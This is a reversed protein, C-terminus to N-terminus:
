SDKRNMYFSITRELPDEEQTKEEAVLNSLKSERNVLKFYEDKLAIFEIQCKTLFDICETLSLIKEKKAAKNRSFLGIKISSKKLIVDSIITELNSIINNINEINNDLPQELIIENLALQKIIKKNLVDIKESLSEIDKKIISKLGIKVTRSHIDDAEKNDAINIIESNNKDYNIVEFDSEEGLKYFKINEKAM